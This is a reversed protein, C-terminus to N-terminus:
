TSNRKVYNRASPIRDALQNNWYSGLALLLIASAAASNLALSGNGPRESEALESAPRVRIPASRAFCSSALASWNQQDRRCHWALDPGVSLSTQAAVDSGPPASPCPGLDDLNTAPLLTPASEEGGGSGIPIPLLVLGPVSVPAQAINTPQALAASLSVVPLGPSAPAGAVLTSFVVLRTPPAATSTAVGGLAGVATGASVPATEPRDAFTDGTEDKGPQDPSGGGGQLPNGNPTQTNPLPVTPNSGTGFNLTLAYAGTSFATSDAGAAEVYYQQGASVGTITVSLTTGYQGAGSQYGIQQESSNYVTLTPSLLSLGSSQVNAVMTGSTGSPVTFTYYDLNSTTTIDLGIVLATLATPDILSTINAAQGFSNNPEYSDGSRANGGSYISRIGSIDDSYLSSKVRNYYTFMTAYSISSHALGLAHGIEHSAVTFLDYNQGNNNWPQGTNFEIDGAISYNNVPPPFNAAALTSTGFNYGGLRIDGMGPDGQQYSGGGEATGNDAVVAFNINTQQAWVQAARLIINQWVSASGFRANLTAFLNSQTSGTLQTGDPMFSITILQPHPWSNGTVSYPVIRSELAELHPRSHLALARSRPGRTGRSFWAM